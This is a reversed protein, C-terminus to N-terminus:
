IDCFRGDGLEFFVSNESFIFQSQYGLSKSFGAKDDSKM